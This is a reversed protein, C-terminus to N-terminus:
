PIEDQRGSLMTGGEAAGSEVAGEVEAGSVVTSGGAARM